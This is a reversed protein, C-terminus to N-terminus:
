KLNIATIQKISFESNFEQTASIDFPCTGIWLGQLKKINSSSSKFPQSNVSFFITESRQILEIFQWEQEDETFGLSNNSISLFGSDYIIEISEDADQLCAIIQKKSRPVKIYFSLSFSSISDKCIPLFAHSKFIDLQNLTSPFTIRFGLLPNIFGDCKNSSTDPVLYDHPSSTFLWKGLIIGEDRAAVAAVTVSNGHYIQKLLHFFGTSANILHHVSFNSLFTKTALSGWLHIAYKGHIDLPRMYLDVMGERDWLPSFFANHDLVTIENPYKLSMKRPLIVSHYNWKASDFTEYSEYWRRLFASSKNAIIVANCLGYKGNRGELGMVIDNNLLPQFSTLPIVDIDMYIGGFQLLVQLRIIDAKHAYHEVKNGFIELPMEVRNMRVMNKAMRWYYGEPENHYHFYIAEPKLIDATARISLFHELRLRARFQGLGYVFHVVNPISCQGFQIFYACFLFALSIQYIM